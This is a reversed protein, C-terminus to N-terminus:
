IKQGIKLIRKLKDERKDPICDEILPSYNGIIRIEPEHHDLGIWYKKVTDKYYEKGNIIVVKFNNMHYCKNDKTKEIYYPSGIVFKYCEKMEMPYFYELITKKDEESCNFLKRLKKEKWKKIGMFATGKEHFKDSVKDFTCNKKFNCGHFYGAFLCFSFSCNDFKTWRIHDTLLCNQFTCNEFVCGDIPVFGIFNVDKFTCNQFTLEHFHVSRDGKCLYVKNPERKYNIFKWDKIIVDLPCGNLEIENEKSDILDEIVPNDEEFRIEM